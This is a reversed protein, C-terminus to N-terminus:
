DVRDAVLAYEDENGGLPDRWEVSAVRLGVPALLIRWTDPHLPRGASLDAVVPPVSAAWRQPNTGVVVLRGGPRLVTAAREALAVAGSVTLRDAMGVVVVAALHGEAVGLLHDIVDDGPVVDAAPAAATPDLAYADAGAERVRAVLDGADVAAVVVRGSCDVLAATIVDGWEARLVPPPLEVLAEADLAPLRGELAALREDVQRLAQSVAHDFASIQRSLHDFQWGTLRRITKKVAAGARMDSAVPAQADIFSTRDLEELVSGFDASGGGHPALSEFLADLEQELGGLRGSERLARAEAAVEAMLAATDISQADDTM